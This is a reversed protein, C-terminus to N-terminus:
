AGSLEYFQRLGSSSLAAGRKYPVFSPNFPFVHPGCHRRADPKRVSVTRWIPGHQPLVAIIQCRPAACGTNRGPLACSLRLLTRPFALPLTVLCFVHKSTQFVPTAEGHELLTTGVGKKRCVMTNDDNDEIKIFGAGLPDGQLLHGM